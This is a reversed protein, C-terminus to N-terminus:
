RFSIRILCMLHQTALLLPVQSLFAPQGRRDGFRLRQNGIDDIDSNTPVLRHLDAIGTDTHFEPM